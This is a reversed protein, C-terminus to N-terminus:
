VGSWLAYERLGQSPRPRARLLTGVTERTTPHYRTQQPTVKRAEQLSELADEPRAMLAESRARDIWYVGARAPPYGEPLRVERARRLAESHEDRDAAAAIAHQAVNTPGFVFLYHNTEGIDRAIGEAEELCANAEEGKGLLGNLQVGKLFLGGRVARTEPTGDDDLDRLGQRVLRLGQEMAPGDTSLMARKVREAAVQRPDGSQAAAAAMRALSLRALDMYGFKYAVSFAGLAAETQLWHALERARGPAAYLLTAYSIEALLAPLGAALKGYESTTRLDQVTSIARQLEPLSRPAPADDEPPIGWDDLAISLPNILQDLQDKRLQEIYPQGHLVSVSVGLARAAAAIVQESPQREGREVDSLMSKSVHARQALERLSYNRLARLEHIRAGVGKPRGDTAQAMM